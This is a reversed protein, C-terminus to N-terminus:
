WAITTLVPVSQVNLALIMWIILMIRFFLIYLLKFWFHMMYITLIKHSSSNCVGYNLETYIANSAYPETQNLDGNLNQPLSYEAEMAM